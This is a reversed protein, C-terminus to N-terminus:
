VSSLLPRLYSGTVTFGKNPYHKCQMIKAKIGCLLGYAMDGKKILGRPFVFRNVTQIHNAKKKGQPYCNSNSTQIPQCLM